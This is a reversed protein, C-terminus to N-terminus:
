VSQNMRYRQPSNGYADKFAKIFHSRNKFGSDDMVEVISKDSNELLFRSYELRKQMLWQSPTTNFTHKFDRRFSSLSRACLRAYDQISLPYQFHTNMTKAMNVEQRQGLQVFYQKLSINDPQSLINLLLEEMKLRLLEKYPAKPQAFYSLLSQFFSDLVENVYLPIVSDSKEQIKEKKSLITYHRSLVERIFSDPIFIFLVLFPEAFYQYVTNAGKKVFLGEGSSVLYEGKQTKWKKQGGLVYAFYNNHAWIDSEDDQVLCKYEVFLLEDIRFTNFLRSEVIYDEINVM